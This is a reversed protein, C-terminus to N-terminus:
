TYCNLHTKNKRIVLLKLEHEKCCRTIVAVKVFQWQKGSMFTLLLLLLICYLLVIYCYVKRSEAHSNLNKKAKGKPQFVFCNRQMLISQAKFFFYGFLKKAQSAIM